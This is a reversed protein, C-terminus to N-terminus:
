SRIKEIAVRPVDSAAESPALDASVAGDGRGGGTVGASSTSIEARLCQRSVAAYSRDAASYAHPKQPIRCGSTRTACAHSCAIQSGHAASHARM